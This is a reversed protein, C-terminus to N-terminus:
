EFLTRSHSHARQEREERFQHTNTHSQAVKLQPAAEGNCNIKPLQENSSSKHSHANTHTNITEIHSHPQSKQFRTDTVAHLNLSSEQSPKPTNTNQAYALTYASTSTREKETHNQLRIVPKCNIYKLPTIERKIAREQQLYQEYRDNNHVISQVQSLVGNAQTAHLHVPSQERISYPSTASLSQPKTSSRIRASATSQTTNAVSEEIKEVQHKHPTKALPSILLPLQILQQLKRPTVFEEYSATEIIDNDVTIQLIDHDEAESEITTINSLENQLQERLNDANIAQEDDNDTEESESGFLEKLLEKRKLRNTSPGHFSIAM